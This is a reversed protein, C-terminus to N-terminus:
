PSKFAGRHRPTRYSPLSRNAHRHLDLNTGLFKRHNRPYWRADWGSRPTLLCLQAFAAVLSNFPDVVMQTKRM